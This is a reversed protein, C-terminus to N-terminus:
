GERPIQGYTSWTQTAAAEAEKEADSLKQWNSYYSLSGAYDFTKNLIIEFRGIAYGQSRARTLEIVDDILLQRENETYSSEEEKFRIKCYLSLFHSDRYFGKLKETSGYKNPLRQKTLVIGNCEEAYMIVAPTSKNYMNYLQTTFTKAARSSVPQYCQALIDDTSNMNYAAAYQVMAPAGIDAILRWPVMKDIMFGYTAATNVFFDWNKSQLFQAVKEEDDSANLDAIEIVLGSVNIPCRRSKIFGTYTIPSSLGTLGVAETIQSEFQDFNELPRLPDSNVNAKFLALYRVMYQQYKLIPNEFARYAKLRSLFPDNIDIKGEMACKEFQTAMANFADVVFHIARLNKEQSQAASITRLHREQRFKSMAIPVFKRNVRGYLLKEALFDTMAKAPADTLGTTQPLGAERAYILRKNFLQRAGEANAKVYKESM